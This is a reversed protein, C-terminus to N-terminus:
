NALEGDILDLAVSTDNSKTHGATNEQYISLSIMYGANNGTRRPVLVLERQM